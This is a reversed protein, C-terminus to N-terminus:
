FSFRPWQITVTVIMNDGWHSILLYVEFIHSMIVDDFAFMKRTVPWKHPSNVPWRHIIGRVFALSASSQHNRQDTGSYVTSYVVTLSTIQFATAGMIFDIYHVSRYWAWRLVVIRVTLGRIYCLDCWIGFSWHKEDRRATTKTWDM